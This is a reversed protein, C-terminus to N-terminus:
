VREVFASAIEQAADRWVLYGAAVALTGEVLVEQAKGQKTRTIRDKGPFLWDARQPGIRRAIRTWM